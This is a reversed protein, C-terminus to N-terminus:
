PQQKDNDQHSKRTCTEAEPHIKLLFSSASSALASATFIVMPIPQPVTSITPASSVVIRGFFAGLGFATSAQEIDFVRSNAAVVIIDSGRIGSRCILFFVPFAASNPNDLGYALMCIGGISALLYCILLSRRSGLKDLIYGSLFISFFDSSVSM